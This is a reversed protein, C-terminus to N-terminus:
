IYVFYTSNSHDGGRGVGSGEKFKLFMKHLISIFTYAKRSKQSLHTFFIKSFRGNERFEEFIKNYLKYQSVQM